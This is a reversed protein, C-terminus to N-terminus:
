KVGIPQIAQVEMETLGKVFSSLKSGYSNSLKDFISGQPTFDKIHSVDYQEELVTSFDSIGDSMGNAISEAGTWFNGNFLEEDTGIFRDGRGNKVSKIFSAHMSKLVRRLRKKDFEPQELYMDMSSKMSGATLVRREVGAKKLLEPMGFGSIIVGISGVITSDNVYINQAASAIYYAGSTLMDEAVVNVKVDPHKKRLAMIRNHILSSQVPSGGPSDMVLLVGKSEEDEFAKKLAENIKLANAANGAAISGNIRIVAAYDYDSTPLDLAKWALSSYLLPVFVISITIMAMRINRWFLDRKQHQMMTNILQSYIREESSAKRETESM